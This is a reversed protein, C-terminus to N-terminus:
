GAGSLGGCVPGQGCRRRRWEEEEEDKKKKTKEREEEEAVVGWRLMGVRDDDEGARTVATTKRKM